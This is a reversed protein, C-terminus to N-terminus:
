YIFHNMVRLIKFNEFSTIKSNLEKFRIGGGYSIYWKKNIIEVYFKHFTM